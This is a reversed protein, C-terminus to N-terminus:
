TPTESASCDVCKTAEKPRAAELEKVVSGAKEKRAGMSEQAHIAKLM